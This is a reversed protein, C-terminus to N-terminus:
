GPESCGEKKLYMDMVEQPVLDEQRTIKRKRTKKGAEPEWVFRREESSLLQHYVSRAVSTGVGLLATVEQATTCSQLRGILVSMSPFASALQRSKTNGVGDIRCLQEAFVDAQSRQGAKSTFSHAIRQSLPAMVRDDLAPNQQSLCRFVYAIWDPLPDETTLYVVCLHRSSAPGTLQLRTLAHQVKVQEEVCVNSPTMFGHVVWFTFPVGSEELAASQQQYRGDRISALMDPLSKFEAQVYTKDDWVFAVDAVALPHIVVPGIGRAGLDTIWRKALKEKDSVLVRWM